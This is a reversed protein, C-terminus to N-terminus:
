EEHDEDEPEGLDDEDEIDDEPMDPDVYFGDDSEM